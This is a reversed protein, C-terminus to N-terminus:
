VPGPGGVLMRGVFVPVHLMAIVAIYGEQRTTRVCRKEARDLLGLGRRSDRDTV